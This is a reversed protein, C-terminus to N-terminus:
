RRSTDLESDYGEVKRHRTREMQLAGLLADAGEHAEAWRHNGGIPASKDRQMDSARPNPSASQWDEDTAILPANFEQAADIAPKDSGLM